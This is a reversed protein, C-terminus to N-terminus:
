REPPDPYFPAIVSGEPPDSAAVRRIFVDHGTGTGPSTIETYSVLKAPVGRVGADVPDPRDMLQIHLHSRMTNGSNGCRALPDGEQIPQGISVSISGRELHALLLYVGDGLDVVVYNGFIWDPKQLGELLSRRPFEKLGENDPVDNVTRIVRGAAPARV